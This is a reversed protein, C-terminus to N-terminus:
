EVSIAIQASKGAVRDVVKVVRIMHSGVGSQPVKAKREMRNRSLQEPTQSALECLIKAGPM